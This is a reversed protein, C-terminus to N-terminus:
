QSMGAWLSPGADFKYMGGDKKSKIDFGHACGGPLYHAECMTVKYGYKAQSAM